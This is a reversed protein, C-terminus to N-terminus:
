FKYDFLEATRGAINYFDSYMGDSWSSIEPFEGSKQKNLSKSLVRTIKHKPPIPSNIFAFLKEMIKEHATFLDESHILLVRDTPLSTLFKHIWKNTETWLWLNKQFTSFRSWQMGEESDSKPIIRTKDAIHGDYWKRRMGSRVVFRPDRVVHIFRADPIADLIIPALFTTQPSTEVYGRKSYLSYEIKEKRSALFAEILIRCAIKNDINEYALKSLGYLLPEPEHYAFVNKALKFLSTLTQTGVRGTSLVFVCPHKEDFGQLKEQKLYKKYFLDLTRRPSRDLFLNLKELPSFSM